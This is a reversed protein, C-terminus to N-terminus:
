KINKILNVESSIIIPPKRNQYIDLKCFNLWNNWKSIKFMKAITDWTPTKPKRTKNYEEESTPKNKM